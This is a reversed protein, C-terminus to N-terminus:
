KKGKTKELTNVYNLVIKAGDTTLFNWDILNFMEYQAKVSEWKKWTEDVVRLVYEEETETPDIRNGKDDVAPKPYIMHNMRSVLQWDTKNAAFAIVDDLVAKFDCDAVSNRVTKWPVIIHQTIGRGLKEVMAAAVRTNSLAHTANMKKYGAEIHDLANIWTGETEANKLEKESMGIIPTGAPILGLKEGSELLYDMHECSVGKHMASFKELPVYYGGDTVDVEQAVWCKKSFVRHVDARRGKGMPFGTWKYLMNVARKKYYATKKTRAFGLGSMLQPQVDGLNALLKIIEAKSEAETKKSLPRLVLAHRDWAHDKAKAIRDDLWQRLVDNGGYLDDIIVPLNPQLTLELIHAKHKDSWSKPKTSVEYVSARQLAKNSRTKYYLVIDVHDAADVNLLLEEKLVTTGYKFPMKHQMNKFIVMMATNASSDKKFQMYKMRAEWLTTCSDFEKQVTTRLESAIREFHAILNTFTTKTYSLAERSAAVEVEGIPVYLDINLDLIAQGDESLAKQQALLEKDIPYPVFGQVVYPGNMHASWDSERLKWGNGTVTHKLAHTEFGARGSVKAKPSFYMLATRAEGYFKDCDDAKVQLSVTLGNPETTKNEAMKTIAPTGADNLFATYFRKMGNHRSEVSFTPAYSFPSKSGLGLAGIFDNSDQKTSEFYTTYLQMVDNHDLGIGNDKVYFVPDLRSPLKVEIPDKNKAAIHSDWANCCLERVIARIKNAYLGSSLIKFAHATAKIKFENEVLDGARVIERKTDHLKM